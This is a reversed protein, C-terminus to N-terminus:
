SAAEEAAETVEAAKAAEAERADAKADDEDSLEFLGFRSVLGALAGGLTPFILFLPLQAYAMADGSIFAPGFSRAPNVSTGTLPIGVLHIAILTLGIVFGAVAATNKRGTVGLIVLVFIFTAITEFIAAQAFNIGYASIGDGFGNAGSVVVGDTPNGVLILKLAFAAATAGAFQAIVYQILDPMSLRGALFAGVSVAPNIHGGSATCVGYAAAVLAFGFALSVAGFDMGPIGSVRAAGVALFVLIFTGIFESIAKRPLM